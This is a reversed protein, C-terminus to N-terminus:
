GSLPGAAKAGMNDAYPLYVQGDEEVNDSPKLPGRKISARSKSGANVLIRAVNIVAM